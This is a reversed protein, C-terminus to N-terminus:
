WIEIEHHRRFDDSFMVFLGDTDSNNKDTEVPDGQIESISKRIRNRVLTTKKDPDLPQRGKATKVDLPVRTEFLKM